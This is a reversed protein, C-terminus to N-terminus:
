FRRGRRQRGFWAPRPTAGRSGEIAHRVAAFQEWPHQQALTGWAWAPLDCLPVDTPGLARGSAQAARRREEAKTPVRWRVCQDGIKFDAWKWPKPTRLRGRQRDLRTCERASDLHEFTAAAAHIIRQRDPDTQFKRVLKQVYTHSVGLWRAVARGSWKRPEASSFWQWALQEIAHSEWSSRWPRPPHAWAARAKELNRLSAERSPM